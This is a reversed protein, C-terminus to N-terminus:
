YNGIAKKERNNKFVRFKDLNELTLKTYNEPMIPMMNNIDIVGFIKGTSNDKIKFFDIDNKMNVFKPKYSTLPAFYDVDNTKLVVGLFCKM